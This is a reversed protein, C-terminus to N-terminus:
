FVEMNSDQKDCEKSRSNSKLKYTKGVFVSKTTKNLKISTVPNKVTVKCTAIVGSGDQAKCTIVATGAAIATVQGNASVNAIKTNSSAWTVKTNNANSPTVTASLSVNKGTFLSVNANNLRIATVPQTVTVRCQAKAGAGDAAKCWIITSGRGTATIVGNQNVKAVKDNDSSWVM